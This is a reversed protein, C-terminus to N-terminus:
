KKFPEAVAVISNAWTREIQAFEQGFTNKLVDELPTLGDFAGFLSLAKQEGYKEVFHIMTHGLLFLVDNRRPPETYEQLDQELDSFSKMRVGVPPSLTSTLGAHYVAFSERLWRPCGKTATQELFIGALEFSLTQEFVRQRLLLDVPQVHLVGGVYIAKRWDKRQRTQSLYKGPSDYIRVLVQNRLDLGLHDSLYSYDRELYDATARADEESVRREYEVKFHVATISRPTPQGFSGSTVFLLLVMFLSIRPDRTLATM